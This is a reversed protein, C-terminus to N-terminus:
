LLSNKFVRLENYQWFSLQYQERIKWADSSFRIKNNMANTSLAIKAIEFRKESDELQYDEITENIIMGDILAIKKALNFRDIEETYIYRLNEIKEGKLLRRILYISPQNGGLMKNNIDRALVNSLYDERMLPLKDIHNTITNNGSEAMVKALTFVYEPNNVKYKDFYNLVALEGELRFEGSQAVIQAICARQSENPYNKYLDVFAEPDGNILSNIFEQTPGHIDLISPDLITDTEPIACQDLFKKTQSDSQKALKAIEIIDKLSTIGYRPLHKITKSGYILANKKAIDVREQHQYLRNLEDFATTKGNILGELLEQSAELSVSDLNLESKSSTEPAYIDPLFELPKTEKSSKSESQSKQHNDTKNEFKDPLFELNSNQNNGNSIYSDPLFELNSSNIQVSSQKKGTLQEALNNIQYEHLHKFTAQRNHKYAIKAISLREDPNKIAYLSIYKSTSEPNIRANTKAVKVRQSEQPCVLNKLVGFANKDGNLLKERLDMSIETNDFNDEFM